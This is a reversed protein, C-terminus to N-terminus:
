KNNNELFTLADEYKKLRALDKDTVSKLRTLDMNNKLDNIKVNKALECKKISSIYENYSLKKNRTLYTIAEICKENVGLAKIDEITYNTDEIVDHLYGVIKENENKGMSAVKQVHLYYPQGGKDFQCKHAKMSFESVKELLKSM